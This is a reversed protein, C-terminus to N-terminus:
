SPQLKATVQVPIVHCVDKTVQVGSKSWTQYAAKRVTISYTGAREGALGVSTNNAGNAPVSTSDAYAGDRAVVTAGAAAPLGTVSDQVTVSLGYAFLATCVVGTGNPQSCAAPLVLCAALIWSKPKM